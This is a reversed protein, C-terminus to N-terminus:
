TPESSLQVRLALVFTLLRLTCLLQWCPHSPPGEEAPRDDNAIGTCQTTTGDPGKCRTRSTSPHNCSSLKTTTIHDWDVRCGGLTCYHRLEFSSLFLWWPSSRWGSTTINKTLSGRRQHVRQSRAALSVFHMARCWRSCLASSAQSNPTCPAAKEANAYLGEGTCAM